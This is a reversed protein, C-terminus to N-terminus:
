QDRGYEDRGEEVYHIQASQLVKCSVSTPEVVLGKRMGMAMANATVPIDRAGVKTVSIWPPYKSRNHIVGTRREARRKPRM